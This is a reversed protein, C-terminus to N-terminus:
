FIKALTYEVELFSGLLMKKFFPQPFGSFDINFFLDSVDVYKKDYVTM